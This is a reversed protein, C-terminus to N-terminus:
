DRVFREVELKGRRFLHYAEKAHDINKATLSLKRESTMISDLEIVIEASEHQYVGSDYSQLHREDLVQRVTVLEIQEQPLLRAVEFADFGKIQVYSRGTQSDKQVKIEPGSNYDRVFWARLSLTDEDM